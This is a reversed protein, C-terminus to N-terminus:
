WYCSIEIVQDYESGKGPPLKVPLIVRVRRLKHEVANLTHLTYNINRMM